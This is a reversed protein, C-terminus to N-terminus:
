GKTIQSFGLKEAGKAESTSRCRVNHSPIPFARSVAHWAGGERGFGPSVGVRAAKGEFRFRRMLSASASRRLAAPPRVNRHWVATPPHADSLEHDTSAVMMFDSDSGPVNNAVTSVM